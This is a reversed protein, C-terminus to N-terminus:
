PEWDDGMFKYGVGPVNRFSLYNLGVDRWQIDYDGNATRTLTGALLHRKTDANFIIGYSDLFEQKTQFVLGANVAYIEYPSLNGSYFAQLFERSRLHLGLRYWNWWTFNCRVTLSYLKDKDDTQVAARFTSWFRQFDATTPIEDCYFKLAVPPVAREDVPRRMAAFLTISLTLIGVILVGAILSIVRRM